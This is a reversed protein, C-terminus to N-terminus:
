LFNDYLNSLEEYYKRYQGDLREGFTDLKKFINYAQSFCEFSLKQTEDLNLAFIIDNDSHLNYNNILKGLRYYAAAGYQNKVSLM